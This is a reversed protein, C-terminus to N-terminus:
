DKDTVSIETFRFYGKSNKAMVALKVALYFFRKFIEKFSLSLAVRNV